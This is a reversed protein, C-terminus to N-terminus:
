GPCGAESDRPDDKVTSAKEREANGTNDVGPVEMVSAVRNNDGPNRVSYLEM